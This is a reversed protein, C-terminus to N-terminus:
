VPHKVPRDGAPGSAAARDRRRARPRPLPARSRGIGRGADGRPELSEDAIPRPCIRGASRRLTAAVVIAIAPTRRPLRVGDARPASEPSDRHIQVEAELAELVRNARELSAATTSTGSTAPSRRSTRRRSARRTRAALRRPRHAPRDAHAWLARPERDSRGRRAASARLRRGGRGAAPPLERAAGDRPSGRGDPPGASSPESSPRLSAGGGSRPSSARTPAGTRHPDHPLGTPPMAFCISSGRPRGDRRFRRFLSPFELEHGFEDRVGSLLGARAPLARSSLPAVDSATAEALQVRPAAADSAWTWCRHPDLRNLDAQLSGDLLRARDCLFYGDIDHPHPKDEAFSGDIFIETVGVEWLQSALTALQEVLLRRWVADWERARIGRPGAVLISDRLEDLTAPHDGPPLMGSADFDPIPPM